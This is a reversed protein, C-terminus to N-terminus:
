RFDESDLSTMAVLDNDLTYEPAMMKAIKQIIKAKYDRSFNEFAKTLIESKQM